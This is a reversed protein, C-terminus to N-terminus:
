DKLTQRRTRVTVFIKPPPQRDKFRFNLDDIHEKTFSIHRQIEELQFLVLCAQGRRWGAQRGKTRSVEEQLTAREEHSMVVMAPNQASTARRAPTSSPNASSAPNIGKM